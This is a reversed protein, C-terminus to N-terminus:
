GAPQSHPSHPRPRPPPISFGSTCGGGGQAFVCPLGCSPHDSFFEEGRGLSLSLPLRTIARNRPPGLLHDHDAALSPLHITFPYLFPPSSFLRHKPSRGRRPFAPKPNHTHHTCSPSTLQPTPIPHPKPVLSPTQSPNPPRTAPQFSPEDASSDLFAPNAPLRKGNSSPRTNSLQENNVSGAKEIPSDHYRFRLIRLIGKPDIESAGRHGWAPGSAVGSWDM